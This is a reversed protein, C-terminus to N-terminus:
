FYSEMSEKIYLDGQHFESCMWGVVFHIKYCNSTVYSRSNNTYITPFMKDWFYIILYKYYKGNFVKSSYVISVEHFNTRHNRFKATCGTLLMDCPHMPRVLTLKTWRTQIHTLGPLLFHPVIYPFWQHLGRMKCTNRKLM